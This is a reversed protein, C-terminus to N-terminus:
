KVTKNRCSHLIALSIAGSGCGIELINIASNHVHNGNPIQKIVLDVLLETESRPIFIPPVLKIVIDRFTWEGIIYQVPMRFYIFTCTIYNKKTPRCHNIKM